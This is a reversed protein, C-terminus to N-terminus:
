INLLILASSCGTFSSTHAPVRMRLEYQPLRATLHHPLAEGIPAPRTHVDCSHQASDNLPALPFIIRASMNRALNLIDATPTPGHIRQLNLALLELPQADNLLVLHHILHQFLLDLPPM